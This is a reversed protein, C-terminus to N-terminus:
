IRGAERARWYPLDRPLYYPKLYVRTAPLSRTGDYPLVVAQCNELLTFARPHFVPERVERYSKSTGLSGKGGGARGTILSLGPKANESFSYSPSYRRVKGCMESALDASAPDSLSLFIRTRLTQILTRWADGGPLVSRLSSISQTAVIPICRCQRTMAFSKEDGSPDDEGVTAFSQYEDCIFAAPRFYRNPNTKMAAPRKLLAQLWANKLLVGAARSLAPSAGAPMNFAIVRGDEILDDLPPLRNLVTLSPPARGPASIPVVAVAGPRTAPPPPCFVRAVDPLDFMSLFVSIGEVISTRLKVDINQWDHTHWRDVARVRDAHDPTRIPDAAAPPESAWTLQLQALLDVVAPDFATFARDGIPEWNVRALDGKNHKLWVARDLSILDQTGETTDNDLGAFARAEKIRAAFLEPDIACRYVDRLTCWNAPLARHLEIIWRVLNTAAQQWFPDKGRGFLQNLLSAITYALSYSDMDTHLPNWQWKGGLGLEIYDDERGAGKLIRRIDHCFDGKVELILGAARREPRDAQWSFLQRAFPHMCASTKGTGVAGFIAIGTYLGREPLTLWEPTGTEREVTPHHLEGITVSPGGLDPPPWPPLTGRSKAARSPSEVWVRWAGSVALVGAFAGVGPVALYWLHLARYVPPDYAAILDLLPHAGVDPWPRLAAAFTWAVLALTCGAVIRWTLHLALRHLVPAVFARIVLRGARWVRDTVSGDVLFYGSMALVSGIGALAWLFFYVRDSM